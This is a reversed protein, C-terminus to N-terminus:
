TIAGKSLKSKPQLTPITLPTYIKLFYSDSLSRTRLLFGGGDVANGILNEGFYDLEDYEVVFPIRREVYDEAVGPASDLTDGDQQRQRANALSPITDDQCVWTKPSTGISM